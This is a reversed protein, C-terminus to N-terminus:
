QNSDWGVFSLWLCQCNQSPLWLMHIMMRFFYFRTCGLAGELEEMMSTREECWSQILQQHHVYIYIYIHYMSTCPIKDYQSSETSHVNMACLQVFQLWGGREVSAPLLRPRTRHRARRARLRGLTPTTSLDSIQPSVFIWLVICFMDFVHLLWPFLLCIQGWVKQQIPHGWYRDNM